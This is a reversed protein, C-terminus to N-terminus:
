NGSWGEESQKQTGSHLLKPGCPRKLAHVWHVRGTSTPGAKHAWVLFLYVALSEVHTSHVWCLCRLGRWIKRGVAGSRRPQAAQDIKSTRCSWLLTIEPDTGWTKWRYLLVLKHNKKLDNRNNTVQASHKCCHDCCNKHGRGSQPVLFRENSSILLWSLLPFFFFIM